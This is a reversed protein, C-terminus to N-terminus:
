KDNFEEDWLQLDLLEIDSSFFIELVIDGSIWTTFGNNWVSEEEVFECRWGSEEDYGLNFQRPAKVNYLLYENRAKEIIEKTFKKM